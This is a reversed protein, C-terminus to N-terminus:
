PHDGHEPAHQHEHEPVPEGSPEVSPRIDDHDVTAQLRGGVARELETRAQWYDALAELSDRGADIEDQKSRLLEFVGVQMGNYLMQTQEVLRTQLPLLVDRLYEVRTRAALMRAVAARVESRIAVAQARYEQQAKRLMAQARAVRARGTDFIPLPVDISPGITTVGDPETESHVGADLRPVLASADTLGLQRAATEIAHRSAELDLRQEIGMTELGAADVETAPPEPLREAITWGTDEGWVGLLTTLRERRELLEAEALARDLRAQGDLAREHDFDVEPLNGAEVLRAAADVSASTAEVVTARLEAVQQGAQVAIFAARVDAALELAAQTVEARAHDVESEAVRQRLARTAVDMFDEIVHIELPLAPRGPGRLEIGLTPNALAGAQVLDAQAISLEEFTAQLHANRLLAIQVAADPTLPQGLLQLVARRAEEDEPRGQDWHVRQGTREAVLQEVPAFDPELPATSCGCALALLALPCAFGSRRM